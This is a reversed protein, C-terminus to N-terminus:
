SPISYDIGDAGSWIPRMMCSLRRPMRSVRTKDITKPKPQTPEVGQNVGAGGATYSERWPRSARENTGVDGNDFAERLRCVILVMGSYPFGEWTGTGLTGFAPNNVIYTWAGELM